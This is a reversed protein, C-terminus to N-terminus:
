STAPSSPTATTPQVSSGTWPPRTDELLRRPYGDLSEEPDERWGGGTQHWGGPQLQPPVPRRDDGRHPRHPERERLAYFLPTAGGLELPYSSTFVLHILDPLARRPHAPDVPGARPSSAWSNKSRASSPVESAFGSVWDIRNVLATIQAYTRVEALKEYGRHMYGIAPELELDARRRGRCCPPVRRPDVPAAARHEPDHGADSSLRSGWRLGISAGDHQTMLAAGRRREWPTPSPALGGGGSWSAQRQRPFASSRPGSARQGYGTTPLRYVPPTYPSVHAVSYQTSM